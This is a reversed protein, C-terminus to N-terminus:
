RRASRLVPRYAALHEGNAKSWRGRTLLDLIFDVITLLTIM